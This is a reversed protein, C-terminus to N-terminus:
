LWARRTRILMSLFVPAGVLAMIVGVPAEAPLAVLRAALDATALLAAGGMACLPLLARHAPGVAMRLMHPVVLGVFGIVGSLSVAAGVAVATLLGLKLRLRDTDIGLHRAPAEGLALLDLARHTRILATTALAILLLAPALVAWETQAFSGLMWMSLARMETDTSIYTALGILAAGIANVGIGVLLMLVTAGPGGSRGLWLVLAVSALAGAFSLLPLIFPRLLDLSALGAFLGAGFVFWIAAGLAAGTSVGLLGPEALPNRFLAQLAAGSVGLTAGVALAALLRPLRIGTLVTLAGPDGEGIGILALLDRWEIPVAGLRLNAVISVFLALALLLATRGVRGLRAPASSAAAVAATM